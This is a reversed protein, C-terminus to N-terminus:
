KVEFSALLTDIGRQQAGKTESLATVAL